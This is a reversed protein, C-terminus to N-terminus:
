RVTKMIQMVEPREPAEPALKLFQEFRIAMQDIRKARYQMLGGYYYAYALSPNLESARDFAAAAGPWDQRKALVLGLQFHAEAMGDAAAVAGRAADLAADVNNQALQQASMGILRWPDGEPRLALRGYLEVAQDTAGLKQQSQAALYITEPPAAPTAADVVQQYQGAEFLKQLRAAEQGGAMAPLMLLAAVFVYKKM